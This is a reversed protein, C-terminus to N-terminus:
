PATGPAASRGLLVSRFIERTLCFTKVAGKSVCSANRPSGYLLALEGFSEGPKRTVVCCGPLAQTCAARRHMSLRVRHGLPLREIHLSRVEGPGAVYVDIEGSQIVYYTDGDDGQGMITEGAPFDTPIM